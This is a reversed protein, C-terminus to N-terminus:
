PNPVGEQKHAKMQKWKDKPSDKVRGNEAESNEPKAVSMKVIM